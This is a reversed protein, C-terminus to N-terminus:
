CITRRWMSCTARLPVAHYGTIFSCMHYYYESYRILEDTSRIQYLAACPEKEAIGSGPITHEYTDYVRLEYLLIPVCRVFITFGIDYVHPVISDISYKVGLGSFSPRPDSVKQKYQQRITHTPDQATISRAHVM